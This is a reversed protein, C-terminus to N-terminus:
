TINQVRDEQDLSQQGVMMNHVMDEQDVVQQGVMMNHSGVKYMEWINGMKGKDFINGCDM